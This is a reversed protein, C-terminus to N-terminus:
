LAATATRRYAKHLVRVYQGPQLPADMTEQTLLTATIFPNLTERWAVGFSLEAARACGSRRGPLKQDRGHIQALL